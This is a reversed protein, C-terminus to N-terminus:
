YFNGRPLATFAITLIITFVLAWAQAMRAIRDKEAMLMGFSIHVDRSLCSVQMVRVGSDKVMVSKEFVKKLLNKKEYRTVWNNTGPAIYSDNSDGFTDLSSQVSVSKGDTSKVSRSSGLDKEMEIDTIRSSHVRYVHARAENGDEDDAVGGTFTSYLAAPDEWPRVARQHNTHLILCLGNFAAILTSIGIFWLVASFVRWWREVSSLTLLLALM